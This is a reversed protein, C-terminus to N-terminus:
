GREAMHKVALEEAQVRQSVMGYADQNMNGVGQQKEQNESIDCPCGPRAREDRRYKSQM